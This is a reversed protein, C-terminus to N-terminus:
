HLSVPQPAVANKKAKEIAETTATDVKKNANEIVSDVNGTTLAPAANQAAGEIESFDNEQGESVTEPPTPAEISSGKPGEANDNLFQYALFGGGVILLFIVIKIVKNM